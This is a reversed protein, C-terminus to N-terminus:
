KVFNVSLGQVSNKRTTLLVSEKEFDHECVEVDSCKISKKESFLEIM